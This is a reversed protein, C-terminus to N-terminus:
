KGCEKELQPWLRYAKRYCKVAEDVLGQDEYKEAQAILDRAQKEEDSMPAVLFRRYVM